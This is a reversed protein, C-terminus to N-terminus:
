MASINVDRLDECMLGLIIIVQISLDLSTTGGTSSSRADQTIKHSTNCFDNNISKIL